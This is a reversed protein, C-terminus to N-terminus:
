RDECYKALVQALAALERTFQQGPGYQLLSAGLGHITALFIGTLFTALQKDAVACFMARRALRTQRKNLELLYRDKDSDSRWQKRNNIVVETAARALPTSYIKWVEEALVRLRQELTPAHIGTAIIEAFRAEIQEMGYDLVATMLAEKDGFHYQLVGWSVGAQEAIRVTSSAAYGDQSICEAAANLVEIRTRESRATPRRAQKKQTSRSEKPQQSSQRKNM